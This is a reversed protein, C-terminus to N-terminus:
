RLAPKKLFMKLNCIAMMASIEEATRPKIIIEPLFHLDETEDHSYHHLSEEDVLVYKEGLINKFAEIHRATLRLSAATEM